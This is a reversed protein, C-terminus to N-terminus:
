KYEGVDAGRSRAPRISRGATKTTCSGATRVRTACTEAVPRERRSGWRRTRDPEGYGGAARRGGGFERVRATRGAGKARTDTAGNSRRQPSSRRGPAAGAPAARGRRSRREPEGYGRGREVACRTRMTATSKREHADSSVRRPM